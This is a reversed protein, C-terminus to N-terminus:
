LGSNKKQVVKGHRFTVTISNQRSEWVSDVTSSPAAGGTVDVGVQAAMNSADGGVKTGEGLIAEVQELTMDNQIKEFNEKTVKSKCGILLFCLACLAAVNAIRWRTIFVM